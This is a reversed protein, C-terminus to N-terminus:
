LKKLDEIWKKNAMILTLVTNRNKELRPLISKYLKDVDDLSMTCLNYLDVLLNDCRKEYNDEDKGVNPFLDEFTDFGFDRLKSYLNKDGVALFPRLGILPKFIKESLFVDSHHCSETVVTAFHTRWHVPDGLSVIDNSIHTDSLKEWEHFMNSLSSPRDEDLVIPGVFNYREDPTLVSINGKNWLNADEWISNLLLARHDNCKNNLSMYHYEIEPELCYAGDFFYSAHRCIFELWFSFYHGDSVNGVNVTEFRDNLYDHTEKSDDTCTTNEWDMGSYLFARSKDCEWQKLKSLTEKNSFWTTNVLCTDEPLASLLKRSIVKEFDTLLISGSQVDAGNTFHNM